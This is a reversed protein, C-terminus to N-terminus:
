MHMTRCFNKVALRCMKEQVPQRKQQVEKHDETNQSAPAIAFQTTERGVTPTKKEPHQHCQQYRKAHSKSDSDGSSAFCPDVALLMLRSWNTLAALSYYSLQSAPCVASHLWMQLQNQVKKLQFQIAAALCTYINAFKVCRKKYM